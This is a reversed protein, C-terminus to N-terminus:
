ATGMKKGTEPTDKKDAGDKPKLVKIAFFVVAALLILLVIIDVINFKRKKSENM